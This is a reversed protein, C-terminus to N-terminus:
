SGTMKLAAPFRNRNPSDESTGIELNLDSGERSLDMVSPMAVARVRAAGFHGAGQHIQEIVKRTLCLFFRVARGCAHTNLLRSEGKCGKSRSFLSLSQLRLRLGVTRATSKTRSGSNEPIFQSKTQDNILSSTAQLLGVWAVKVQAKM